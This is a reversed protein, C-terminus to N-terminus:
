RKPHFWRFLHKWSLFTSGRKYPHSEDRYFFFPYWDSFLTKKM